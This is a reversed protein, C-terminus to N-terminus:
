NDKASLTVVPIYLKTDKIKFIINGPNAVTNNGGAALVINQGSLNQNLKAVLWHCKM